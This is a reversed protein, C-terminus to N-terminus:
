NVTFMQNVPRSKTYVALRVPDEAFLLYYTILSLLIFLLAATVPIVVSHGM